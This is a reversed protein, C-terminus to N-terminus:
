AKDAMLVGRVISYQAFLYTIMIWFGAMYFPNVFRNIAILSDSVVFSLAGVFVWKFSTESVLNKRNLASLAMTLLVSAYVGVPLLLGTNLLFPSLVYLLIAGYILALVLVWKHRTIYWKSAPIPRTLRSHLIIYFIHAVLFSSLGLLFLNKSDQQALMLLTDGLASFILAALLLWLASQAKNQWALYAWIALFPMLAPKVFHGISALLPM